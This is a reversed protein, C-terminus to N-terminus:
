KESFRKTLLQYVMIGWILCCPLAKLAYPKIFENRVVPPFLDTASLSTLLVAFVIVYTAWTQKQWVYWLGAGVMAIVYTPSEASSSFIVITILVLALYYQQFWQQTYMKFRLLPLGFGVLAAALFPMSSLNPLHAIRKVLGMMSIDQMNSVAVSANKANKYVLKQIWEQYTTIIYEVSSYTMPLVALVLLWFLFWAVFSVKNKAFLFFCLGAIGYLKTLFGIAIFLTAWQNNGKQVHVFALIMFAALMSNFQVNHAATMMEVLAIWAIAQKQTNTLPLSHIAYLLLAANAIGWLLLGIPVPLMAFPAILLGFVPGYHNNDFYKEPYEAYLPLQEVTHLHVYRYIHYNNFSNRSLELATAVLALLMWVAYVLPVQTNGVRFTRNWSKTQVTCFPNSAFTPLCPQTNDNWLPM